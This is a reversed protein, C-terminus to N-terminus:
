FLDKVKVYTDDLTTVPCNCGTSYYNTQTLWKDGTVLLSPNVKIESAQKKKLKYKDVIFKDSLHSNEVGHEDLMQRLAYVVDEKEKKLELNEAFIRELEIMELDEDEGTVNKEQIPVSVGLETTTTRDDVVKVEVDNLPPKIDEPDKLDLTVGNEEFREVSYNKMNEVHSDTLYIIGLLIVVLMSSIMFVKKTVDVGMNAFMTGFSYMILRNSILFIILGLLVYRFLKLIFLM